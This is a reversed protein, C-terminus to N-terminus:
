KMMFQFLSWFLQMAATFTAMTAVITIPVDILTAFVFIVIQRRPKILLHPELTSEVM